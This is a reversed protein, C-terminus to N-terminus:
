KFEYTSAGANTDVAIRVARCFPILGIGGGVDLNIPWPSADPNALNLMTVVKCNAQDNVRVGRVEISKRGINQIQIEGNRNLSVRLDPSGGLLSLVFIGLLLALAIHWWRWSRKAKLQTSAGTLDTMGIEAGHAAGGNRSWKASGGVM